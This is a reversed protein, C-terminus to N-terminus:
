TEGGETPTGEATTYVVGKDDIIVAEPYTPGARNM